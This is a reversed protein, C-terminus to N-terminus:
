LVSSHVTRDFQLVGRAPLYFMSHVSLFSNTFLSFTVTYVLREEALLLQVMLEARVSAYLSPCLSVQRAIAVDMRVPASRVMRATVNRLVTRV